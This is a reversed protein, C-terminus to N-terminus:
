HLHRYLLGIVHYHLHNLALQDSKNVMHMFEEEKLKEEFSSYKRTKKKQVRREEEELAKIEELELSKNVYYCLM